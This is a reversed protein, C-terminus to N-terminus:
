SSPTSCRRAATAPPSAHLRRAHAVPPPARRLARRAAAPRHRARALQRRAPRRDLRAPARGRERQLPPCSRARCGCMGSAASPYRSRRGVAARAHEHGARRASPGLQRPRTAHSAPLDARARACRRRDLQAGRSAAPAPSAGIARASPRRRAPSRSTPSRRPRRRTAPGLGPLLHGALAPQLRVAPPQRRSRPPHHDAPLRAPGGAARSRPRGPRRSGGAAAAPAPPPYVFDPGGVDLDRLEYLSYEDFDTFLTPGKGAFRSNMSALEEYRATPALNSGHYQLADSALVGGALALALLAAAPRSISPRPLALLAAVGGWALLVVVPSTLM